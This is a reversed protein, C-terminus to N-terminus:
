VEYDVVAAREVVTAMHALVPAHVPHKRYTELDEWSDFRTILAIHFSRESGVKDIGVEIQRLVDIQGEMGQLKEVAEPIDAPNKLKFLVNHVIM